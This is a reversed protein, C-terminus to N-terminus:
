VVLLQARRIEGESSYFVSIYHCEPVGLKELTFTGRLEASQEDPVVALHHCQKCECLGRLFLGLATPSAAERANCVTCVRSYVIEKAPTGGTEYDLWLEVADAHLDHTLKVKVHDVQEDRRPQYPLVDVKREM